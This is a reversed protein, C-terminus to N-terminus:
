KNESIVAILTSLNGAINRQEGGKPAKACAHNPETRPTGAIDRQEGGGSYTGMRHPITAKPAKACARNPETRPTGAIDRQEGGGLYTGM